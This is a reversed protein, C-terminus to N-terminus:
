ISAVIKWLKGNGAFRDGDKVIGILAHWHIHQVRFGIAVWSGVWTMRVSYAWSTGHLYQAKVEIHASAVGACLVFDASPGAPRNGSWGRFGVLGWIGFEKNRIASSLGELIM